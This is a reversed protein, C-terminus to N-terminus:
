FCYISQYVINDDFDLHNMFLKYIIFNCNNTLGNMKARELDDYIGIPKYLNIDFVIFVEKEEKISALVPEFQTAQESEAQESEAQESEAQESEAQPRLYNFLTSFLFM